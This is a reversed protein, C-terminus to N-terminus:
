GKRLYQRLERAKAVWQRIDPANDEEFRRIVENFVAIAVTSKGRQQGLIAGKHTLAQAIQERM